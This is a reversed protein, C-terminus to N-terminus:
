YNNPNFLQIRAVTANGTAIARGIANHGASAVGITAASILPLSTAVETAPAFVKAGQSLTAPVRSLTWVGELILTGYGGAAVDDQVVGYFGKEYVLEGARHAVTFLVRNLRGGRHIFNKAM